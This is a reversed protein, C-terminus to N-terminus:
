QGHMANRATADYEKLGNHQVYIAVHVTVLQKVNANQPHPAGDVLRGMVRLQSGFFRFTDSMAYRTAWNHLTVLYQM